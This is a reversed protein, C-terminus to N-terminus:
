RLFIGSWRRPRCSRIRLETWDQQLASQWCWIRIAPRIRVACSSARERRIGPIRILPSRNHASWAVYVPAEFGPVLRKYSNVIPNTIATMCHIHKMLGGIFYYAERSLGM